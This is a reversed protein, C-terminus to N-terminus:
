KEGRLYYEKLFKKYKKLVYHIGYLHTLNAKSLFKKKSIRQYFHIIEAEKLHVIEYGHKRIRMCYEVDEPSYFIKEDLGGIEKYINYKMIWCASILYDCKFEDTVNSYRELQEGKFQLKKIPSAKYLKIRWSPFKRFPIQQVGDKGKMAPGVLGVDNNNDLYNTMIEIAKENIITDSDLICVYDTNVIQKLGINRSITTGYNKNLPTLTLEKQNFKKIINLSEDTSGNDIIYIHTKFNKLNLISNICKELYKESNYSLMVFDINKM